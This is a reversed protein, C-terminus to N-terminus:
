SVLPILERINFPLMRWGKKAYGKNHFSEEREWDIYEYSVNFLKCFLKLLRENQGNRHLLDGYVEIQYLTNPLDPHMLYFKNM